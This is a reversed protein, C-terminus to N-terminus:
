LTVEIDMPAYGTAEVHVTHRGRAAPFSVRGHADSQRTMAGDLTVSAGAIPQGTEDLLTFLAQGDRYEVTAGTQLLPEFATSLSTTVTKPVDGVPADVACDVRLADIDLDAALLRHVGGVPSHPHDVTVLAGPVWGRDAAGSLAQQWRLRYRPRALHRLLREGLAQAARPSRLWGADWEMEVRGYQRVAEPAEVTLARRPKDLAHDYDYVIRLATRIGDHSAEAAFGGASAVDVCLLAEGTVQAPYLMAVEPAAASWAAGVSMLLKDIAARMSLAPDDIVGGLVMGATEARFRDFRAWPLDIGCVTGILDFLIEAPSALVHGHLAHRKGHLTVALREGEALPAALEIFAAAHGTSDVGNFFRYATSPADDRTLSEVGAVPHDALLFVRGTRDYPVPALRVRGYAHPLVRIDKYAGWVVSTRLPVPDTFPQRVGADMTLAAAEGLTVGTVVGSFVVGQANCLRAQARLAQGRAFRLSVEGAANDLDVSVSATEASALGPASLPRRITGIRALLPLCLRSDSGPACGPRYFATPAAGDIELWADLTVAATM